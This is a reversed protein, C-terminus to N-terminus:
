ELQGGLMAQEFADAEADERAREADTLRARRAEDAALLREREAAGPLAVTETPFPEPTM